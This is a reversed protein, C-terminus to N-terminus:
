ASTALAPTEADATQARRSSLGVVITWIPLLIAPAAVYSALLLVAVVRGSVTQWRPASATRGAHLWMLFTAVAFSYIGGGILVLLGAQAFTHAIPIGVFSNGSNIQVGVPGLAIAGGIITAAAGLWAIREAYDALSGSAISRRLEGYFWAMLLSGAVLAFYLLMATIRRGSSNYFDTFQRDTVSGGGPLTFISFLGAAFVIGALVGAVNLRNRMTSM